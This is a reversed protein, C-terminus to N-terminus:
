VKKFKTAVRQSQFGEVEKLKVEGSTGEPRKGGKSPSMEHSPEREGMRNSNGQVRM